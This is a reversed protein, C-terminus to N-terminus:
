IRNWEGALMHKQTGGGRDLQSRRTPSFRQRTLLIGRKGPVRPM